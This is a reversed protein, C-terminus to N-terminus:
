LLECGVAFWTMPVAGAQVMRLVALDSMMPSFTGSSDIVAYADYGADLVSLTLFTLCVDTSVGAIILKKVGLSEVASKFEENDWANIEGPRSIITANPIIDLIYPVTPGNPGEKKSTSIITPLNFLKAIMSLAKVNVNYEPLSM